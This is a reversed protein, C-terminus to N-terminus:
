RSLPFIRIINEVVENISLGMPVQPILTKPLGQEGSVIKDLSQCLSEGSPEIIEFNSCELYKKKFGLYDNTIVKLGMNSMELPPYSPHPSLMLSIGIDAESLVEQYKKYSLGGLSRM